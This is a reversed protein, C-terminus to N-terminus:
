AEQEQVLGVKGVNEFLSLFAAYLFGAQFLFIFPLTGYIGNTVAYWAMLSFYVGLLLEIFPVLTV